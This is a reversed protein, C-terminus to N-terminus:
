RKLMIAEQLIDDSTTIVRANAQFGRQAIIMEAFENAVDVNSRELHGAFVSTDYNIGAKGLRATGSAGSQRFLSDGTKELGQENTFQALIVQALVQTVGNSYTGNIIGEEDIAISDLRGPPYGDQSAAVTTTPSTTQTIGDFLGPTGPNLTVTELEGNGPNFTFGTAGGDYVLEQLSGDESNFSVYGRGGSMGVAPEGIGLEFIWRNTVASRVFNIMLTHREGQSDYVDIATTHETRATTFTATGATLGGAASATIGGDGLNLLNTIRGEGANSAGLEVAVPAFVTGDWATFTDTAALTSATGSDARLLAAGAIVQLLDATDGQTLEVNYLTGDGYRERVVNLEGELLSFSVGSTQSNLANLLENVTSDATFGVILVPEGNDVSVALDSIDTIGLEALTLATDLPVGTGNSGTVRSRTANEGTITLEHTGGIGDAATGSIQTIGTTGTQASDFSVTAGTADANLNCQLDVRTTARAETKEALPLRLNNLNTVDPLDGEADAVIGQVHYAGSQGLLWGDGDVQFAGARTYFTNAGDSLIFFGEGQLALDTMQGTSELSGQEFITDISATGVGLGIQLPNTGGFDGHARAAGRITQSLTDEFTVRGRKFGNTNANAINNSVANLKVQHHLM